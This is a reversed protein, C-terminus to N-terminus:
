KGRIFNNFETPFIRENLKMVRRVLIGLVWEAFYPTEQVMYRFEEAKVIVLQCDTTAVATTTHPPRGIIVMEGLIGGVEVTELVMGDARIEVTGEQVVYMEDGFDGAQFIFDGASCKKINRNFRFLNLVVLVVM